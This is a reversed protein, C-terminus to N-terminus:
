RDSVLKQRYSEDNIKYITSEMNIGNNMTHWSPYHRNAQYQLDILM